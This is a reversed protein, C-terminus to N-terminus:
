FPTVPEDVLRDYISGVFVYAGSDDRDVFGAGLATQSLRRADVKRGLISEYLAVLEAMQFPEDIMGRGVPRTRARNRLARLADAVLDDHDFALGPLDDVEFWGFEAADDAAALEHDGSHTLGWHAVAVTRGRPDRGPTGFVGYEVLDVEEMGTEETLERYAANAIPEDIEVFGGPTAWKGQFPPQGRQILLIELNREVPSFVACDVSVAPRPYDYEYTM